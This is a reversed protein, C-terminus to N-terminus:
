SPAEYSAGGFPCFTHIIRTGQPGKVSKKKDILFATSVAAQTPIKWSARVHAILATLRKRAAVRTKLKELNPKNKWSKFRM